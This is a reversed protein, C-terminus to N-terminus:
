VGDTLPVLLTAEMSESWEPCGFFLGARCDVLVLRDRKLSEVSHNTEAWTPVSRKTITQVLLRLDPLSLLLSFYIFSTEPLICMYVLICGLEVASYM